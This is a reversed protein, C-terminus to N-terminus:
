SETKSVAIDVEGSIFLHLLQVPMKEVTVNDIDTYMRPWGYVGLPLPRYRADRHNEYSDVESSSM